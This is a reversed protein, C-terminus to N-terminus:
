ARRWSSYVYLGSGVVYLNILAPGHEAPDLFLLSAALLGLAGLLTARPLVQEALSCGLGILLPDSTQM